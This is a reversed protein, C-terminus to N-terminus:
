YIEITDLLKERQEPTFKGLEVGSNLLQLLADQKDASVALPIVSDKIAVYPIGDKAWTKYEKTKGNEKYKIGSSQGTLSYGMDNLRKQKQASATLKGDKDTEYKINTWTKGNFVQNVGNLNRIAGTYAEPSNGAAKIAALRRAEAKDQQRLREDYLASQKDLDIDGYTKGLNSAYETSIKNKANAIDQYAQNESTQIGSLTNGLTNARSIQEQAAVGAYTQGRNAWYEAFNKAGIQSSVNAAQKQATYKPQIKAEEINVETLAADRLSQLEKEKNQKQTDYISNIYEENTM